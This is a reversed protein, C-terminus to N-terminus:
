AEATENRKEKIMSRVILVVCSAAVVAAIGNTVNVWLSYSQDGLNEFFMIGKLVAIINWAVLIGIRGKKRM